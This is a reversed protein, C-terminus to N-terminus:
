LTCSACIALMKAQGAKAAAEPTIKGLGVEQVIPNLADYIEFLKPAKPKAVAVEMTNKM